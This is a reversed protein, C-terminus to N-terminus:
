TKLTIRLVFVDSEDLPIILELKQIYAPQIASFVNHHLLHGSIETREDEVYLLRYTQKV